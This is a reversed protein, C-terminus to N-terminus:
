RRSWGGRHWLVGEGDAGRPVGTPDDHARLNVVFDTHGFKSLLSAARKRDSSQNLFLEFAADYGFRFGHEDYRDAYFPLFEDVFFERFEASGTRYFANGNIHRWYDTGIPGGGRYQGGMMWKHGMETAVCEAAGTLWGATMPQCDTEMLLFTDYNSM